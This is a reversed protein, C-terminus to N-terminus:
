EAIRSNTFDKRLRMLGFYLLILAIVCMVIFCVIVDDLREIRVALTMFILPLLIYNSFNWFIHCGIVIKINGTKFLTWALFSAFVFSFMLGPLLYRDLSIHLLAFLFASSFISKLSSYRKLFSMFILGRFMIEEMIPGVIVLSLFQSINRPQLEYLRGRRKIFEVMDTSLMDVTDAVVRYFVFISITVLIFVWWHGGYKRTPFLYSTELKRTKVVLVVIASFILFKSVAYSIPSQYIAPFVVKLTGAVVILIVSLITAEVFSLYKKGKEM